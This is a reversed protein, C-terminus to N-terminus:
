AQVQWVIRLLVAVLGPRGKPCLPLRPPSLAPARLLPLLDGGGWRNRVLLNEGLAPPCVTVPFLAKGREKAEGM